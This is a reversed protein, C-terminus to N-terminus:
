VWNFSCINFGCLLAINSWKNIAFILVLMSKLNPILSASSEHRRHWMCTRRRAAGHWLINWMETSSPSRTALLCGYKHGFSVIIDWYKRSNLVQGMTHKSLFSKRTWSIYRVKCLTELLDSKRLLSKMLSNGTRIKTKFQLNHNYYSFHFASCPLLVPKLLTSIRSISLLNGFEWVARFQFPFREEWESLGQWSKSM